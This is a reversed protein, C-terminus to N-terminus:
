RFFRDPATTEISMADGRAHTRMTSFRKALTSFCHSSTWPMALSPRVHSTGEDTLEFTPRPGAGHM